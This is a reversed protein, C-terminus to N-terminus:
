LHSKQSYVQSFVDKWECFKLNGKVYTAISNKHIYSKNYPLSFWFNKIEPICCTKKCAPLYHADRGDLHNVNMVVVLSYCGDGFKM